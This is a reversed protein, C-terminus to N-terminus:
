VKQNREHKLIKTNEPLLSDYNELIGNNKLNELLDNIMENGKDGVIYDYHDVRGMETDITKIIGSSFEEKKNITHKIIRIMNNHEKWEVYGFHLM